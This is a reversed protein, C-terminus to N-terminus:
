YDIHDDSSSLHETPSLILHQNQCKFHKSYNSKVQFEKKQTQLSAFTQIMTPFGFNFKLLEKEMIVVFGYIVESGEIDVVLLFLLVRQLM